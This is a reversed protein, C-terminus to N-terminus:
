RRGKRFVLHMGYLALVGAAQTYRLAMFERYPWGTLTCFRKISM